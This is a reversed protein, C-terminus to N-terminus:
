REIAPLYLRQPLAEIPIPTGTPPAVTVTPLVTPTATAAPPTTPTPPAVTPTAVPTPSAAVTALKLVFAEGYQGRTPQFGGATVPFVASDAFGTVYLSGNDDLAMGRAGDDDLGGWYTSFPLSGNMDFQAVFADYCNRSTSGTFCLGPGFTTQLANRVPFNRSGTLGAAFLEGGRGFQAAHGAETGDGGLYTSFAIQYSAGARRLHTVFADSMTTAGAKQPQVANATPFDDAFTEGALLLNGQGDVAIARGIDKGSGGNAGGGGLYTNFLIEDGAASLEIVFADVTCGGDGYLGCTAQIPAVLPWSASQIEGTVFIHDQSDLAIGYGIAEEGDIMSAYLLDYQQGDVKAFFGGWLSGTLHVDGRSDLALDEGADYLEGGFYSSFALDGAGNLQLILADVGGGATPQFANLTPLNTSTTRGTVWVQDGGDNVAIGTAEDTGDGGIITTYLIAAGAADIKTVFLDDYGANGSGGGPFVTSYTYGAVYVNGAGDVAVDAARDTNNGGLYSSYVLTPDIILLRTPDYDRVIFSVEDGVLRYRVAVARRQSGDMQYAVPAKEVLTAGSTLTLRLDGSADDLLVRHVGTYRWGIQMPDAGAAVLYTGKLLGESGDYRLDVGPYLHQYVVAGYTPLGQRWKQPDAGRYLNVVGPLKEAVAFTTGPQAGVFRVGVTDELLALQVGAQTFAIAGGRGHATFYIAADEQGTNPVFALPFEGLMAATPLTLAAPAPQYTKALLLISSLLLAAALWNALWSRSLTRRFTAKM